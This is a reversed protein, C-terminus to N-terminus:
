TRLETDLTLSVAPWRWALLLGVGFGVAYGAAFAAVPLFASHRKRFKHAETAVNIQRM